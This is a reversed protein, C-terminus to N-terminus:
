RTPTYFVKCGAQQAFIEEVMRTPTSFNGVLRFDTSWQSATGFGLWGLTTFVICVNSIPLSFNRILDSPIFFAAATHNQVTNQATERRWIPKIDILLRGRNKCLREDASVVVVDGGKEELDGKERVGGGGGM